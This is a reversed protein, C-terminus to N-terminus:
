TDLIALAVGLEQFDENVFGVRSVNPRTNIIDVGGTDWALLLDLVPDLFHQPVEAWILEPNVRVTAKLGTLPLLRLSCQGIHDVGGLEVAM